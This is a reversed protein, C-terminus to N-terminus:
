NMAKRRYKYYILPSIILLYSSFARANNKLPQLQAWDTKRAKASSPPRSMSVALFNDEEKPPPM